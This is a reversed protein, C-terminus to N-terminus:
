KAEKHEGLTPRCISAMHRLSLRRSPFCPKGRETAASAAVRRAEMAEEAEKAKKREGRAKRDATITRRRDLEKAWETNSM